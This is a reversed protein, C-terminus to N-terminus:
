GLYSKILVVDKAAGQPNFDNLTLKRIESLGESAVPDEFRSWYMNMAVAPIDHGTMLRRFNNLHSCLEKPVDFHIARVPVGAAVAASIYGNRTERDRNQNDVIVSKGEKLAEKCAKWCKEKTTGEQNVRHYDAFLGRALTSKGACPPGILIVVEQVSSANPPRLGDMSSEVFTKGLTTPNFNIVPLPRPDEGYFFAEPTKFAIGANLAFKLDCDSFDKKVNGKKARGAADSIFFCRKPLPQVGSRLHRKMLEWMGARPKRFLDDQTAVLALLESGLEAQVSDILKHVTEAEVTGKGIGSQNTFVVLKFGKSVLDRLRTPICPNWWQWDDATCGHEKDPDTPCILTGDLDFAAIMQGGAMDSYDRVWVSGCELSWRETSTNKREPTAAAKQPSAQPKETKQNEDLHTALKEKDQPSLRALADRLISNEMQVGKISFGEGAMARKHVMVMAAM